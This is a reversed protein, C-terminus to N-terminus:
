KKRKMYEYAYRLLENKEAFALADKKPDTKLGDKEAFRLKEVPFLLAYEGITAGRKVYNPVGNENLYKQWKKLDKKLVKLFYPSKEISRQVYAYDSWVEVASLGTLAYPLAAQKLLEPVKFELIGRVAKEPSECRYEGRKERKIWGARSLLSFIKKKMAPTALWDLDGQGFRESLGHRSFLVAYARLGYAPLEFM